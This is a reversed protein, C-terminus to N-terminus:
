KLASYDTPRMYVLDVQYIGNAQQILPAAAKFYPEFEPDAHLANWNAEAAERSPHDLVYVFTNDWAPDNGEPVWYGVAKLGHRAQLKSVDRFISELAPAKGPLVHYVMLQYVHDSAAEVRNGRNVGAHFAVGTVFSILAVCPLCAAKIAKRCYASDVRMRKAEVSIRDSFLGDVRRHMPAAM